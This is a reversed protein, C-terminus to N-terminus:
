RRDEFRYTALESQIRGTWVGLRASADDPKVEYIARLDVQLPNDKSPLPFTQWEDSAFYVNIAAMEGAGLEDFAKINKLFKVSRRRIEVPRDNEDIMEFRLAYRGWSYTQDWLRIPHASRNHLVVHFHPDDGVLFIAREGGTQPVSIVIQLAHGDAALPAAPMLPLAACAAVVARLSAVLPKM